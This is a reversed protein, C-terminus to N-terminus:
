HSFRHVRNAKPADGEPEGADGDPGKAEVQPLPEAGIQVRIHRKHEGDTWIFKAGPPRAEFVLAGWEPRVGFMNWGGEDPLVRSTAGTLAVASEDCAAVAAVLRPNPSHQLTTKLDLDPDHYILWSGVVSANLATWEPHRTMLWQHLREASAPDRLSFLSIRGELSADSDARSLVVAALGGATIFGKHAEALAELSPSPGLWFMPGGGSDEVDEDEDDDDGV